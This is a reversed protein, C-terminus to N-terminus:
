DKRRSQIGRVVDAKQPAFRAPTDEFIILFSNSVILERVEDVVNVARVSESGIQDFYAVLGRTNQHIPVRLFEECQSKGLAVLRPFGHRPKPSRCFRQRCWSLLFRKETQFDREVRTM